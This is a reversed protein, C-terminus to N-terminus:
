KIMPFCPSLLVPVVPCQFLGHIKISHTELNIFLFPQLSLNAMLRVALSSQETRANRTEYELM